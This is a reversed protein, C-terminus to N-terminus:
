NTTTVQWHVGFRDEVVGYLSAWFQKALPAIVKGGDSLKNFVSTVEEASDYLLGYSFNDCTPRKEVGDSMFIITGLISLESHMVFNPPLGEMGSDPPADRVYNIEKVRAGLAEKYFIIAEDCNGPFHINPVLM